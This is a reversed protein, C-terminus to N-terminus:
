NNMLFVAPLVVFSVYGAIILIIHPRGSFVAVFERLTASPWFYWAVKAGIGVCKLKIKHAYLMCRYVHYNSSVLAIRSKKRTKQIIAKSNALNEMTTKSTDELIIHDEPIGHALLYEKMAFAESVSEDAGKGGSPILIPKEKCRQYIEIAKDVRNSLLKSIRNGDLLGCGHIIVYDFRMRHPMFQIFLIYLVFSLIWVSFYFVSVFFFSIIRGGVTISFDYMTSLVSIVAAIEGAGIIIGLILSLLNGLSRSEKKMMVIGNCILMAPVLFIVLCVGLSFIMLADGSWDGFLGSVFLLTALLAVMLLFSNTFRQPRLFTFLLFLGWSGLFFPLLDQINQLIAQM